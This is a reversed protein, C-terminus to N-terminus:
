NELLEDWPTYINMDKTAIKLRDRNNVQMLNLEEHLFYWLIAYMQCDKDWVMLCDEVPQHNILM